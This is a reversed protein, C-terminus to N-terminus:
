FFKSFSLTLFDNRVLSNLPGPLYGKEYSLYVIDEKFLKVQANGYYGIRLVQRDMNNVKAGVGAAIRKKFPFQVGGDLVDLRYNSNTTNTINLTATFGNFFFNQSIIFNVANFYVFGTDAATNYFRNFVATTAARILGLRYVHNVSANLSQFRSEVLQNDLKVLQSAPMYGLSVMPWKRKRFTAQFSKFVTSSKYNQVIYPNSFENSRLSASLKLQRKFLNQEGKIIWATNSSNTQFSTFSQYNAGTFRYQAEIRSKTQPIYSFLKVSFAKNTGDSFDWFKSASPQELALNPSASQAVEAILYSQKALMWKAEASLGTVTVPKLGPNSNSSPYLQKQGRFLSFILYNRELQGLGLRLLYLYQPTRKQPRLAFDRFRYDVLGASLAFYYWSNYEINLGNLSINKATLDSYSLQNRGLSFQRLGLMWQYQAPIKIQRGTADSFGAKLQRLSRWDPQQGNIARKLQEIKRAGVYYAGRLSDVVKELRAQERKKLDYLNMFQRAAQRISDSRKRALSDPLSADYSLGPIRWVENMEILRQKAFPSELQMSLNNLEAQKLFYLKGTLSDKYDDISKLLQKKLGSIVNSRFSSGDFALRADYIDRFYVSNSKRGLFTISVPFSNAITLKIHGNLTHQAISKEQFPTDINARYFFHYNIMGGNFRFLPKGSLQAQLKLSPVTYNFRPLTDTSLDKIGTLKGSIQRQLNKRKANQQKIYASAFSKSIKKASDLKGPISDSIYATVSKPITDNGRVHHTEGASLATPILNLCLLIAQIWM